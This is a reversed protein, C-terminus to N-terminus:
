QQAEGLTILPAAPRTEVRSPRTNETPPKVTLALLDDRDVEEGIGLAEASEVERDEVV